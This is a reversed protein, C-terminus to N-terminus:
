KKCGCNLSGSNAANWGQDWWSTQSQSNANASKLFSYLGGIANLEGESFGAGRMFVGVGYNSANTYAPYFNGDSRQYDFQGGQGVASNIGWPNMGNQQGAAYENCFNASPPAYFQQGNPATYSVSGPPVGPVITYGRLGDPDVENVPNGGVYAYLNNDSGLRGLPDPEAYRGLFKNFNAQPM